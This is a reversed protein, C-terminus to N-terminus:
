GLSPAEWAALAYELEARMAIEAEAGTAFPGRDAVRRPSDKLREVVLDLQAQMQDREPCPECANIMDQLERLIGIKM